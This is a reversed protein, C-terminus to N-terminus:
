ASRALATDRRTPRLSPLRSSERVWKASRERGEGQAKGRRSIESPERTMRSPSRREQDFQALGLFALVVLFALFALIVLVALVVLVAVFPMGISVGLWM